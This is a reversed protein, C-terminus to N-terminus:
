IDDTLGGIKFHTQEAVPLEKLDEAPVVSLKDGFRVLALNELRDEVDVLLGHYYAEQFEIKTKIM